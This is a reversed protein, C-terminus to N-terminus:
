GITSWYKAAAIKFKELIVAKIDPESYTIDTVVGDQFTIVVFVWGEKIRDISFAKYVKSPEKPEVKKVKSM